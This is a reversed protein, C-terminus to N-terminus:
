LFIQRVLKLFITKSILNQISKCNLVEKYISVYNSSFIRFCLTSQSTLTFYSGQSIHMFIYCYYHSLRHRPVEAELNICSWWKRDSITCLFIHITVVVPLKVVREKELSDVKKIMFCSLANEEECSVIKNLSIPVLVAIILQPM